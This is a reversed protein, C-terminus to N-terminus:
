IGAGPAYPTILLAVTADPVDPAQGIVGNCVYIAQASLTNGIFAGICSFALTIRTDPTFVVPRVNFLNGYPGGTGAWQNNCLGFNSTPPVVNIDAVGSLLLLDQVITIKEIGQTVRLWVEVPAGIPIAQDSSAPPSPNPDATAANLPISVNGILSWSRSYRDAAQALIIQQGFIVRPNSGEIPDTDIQTTVTNAWLTPDGVPMKKQAQQIQVRGWDPPPMNGHNDM